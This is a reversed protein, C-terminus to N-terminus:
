WLCVCLGVCESFGVCVSVSLGDRVCKYLEKGTLDRIEQSALREPAM